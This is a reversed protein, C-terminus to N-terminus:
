KIKKFKAVLTQEGGGVHAWGAPRRAQREEGHEEEERQAHRLPRDLETWRDTPGDHLRSSQVGCTVQPVDCAWRRKSSGVSTGM